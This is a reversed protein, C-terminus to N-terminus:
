EEHRGMRDAVSQVAGGLGMVVWFTTFLAFPPLGPFSSYSRLFDTYTSVVLTAAIAALMSRVLQYRKYEDKEDRLYLGITVIIGIVPLTPLASLFWLKVGEPQTHRVLATVRWVTLLYFGMVVAFRRLYEKEAKTKSMWSM